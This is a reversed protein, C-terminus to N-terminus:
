KNLFTNSNSYDIPIYINKGYKDFYKPAPKSPRLPLNTEISDILENVYSSSSELFGFYEKEYLIIVLKELYDLVEPLILVNNKLM